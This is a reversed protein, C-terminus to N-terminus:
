GAKLARGADDHLARALAPTESTHAPDTVKMRMWRADDTEHRSADRM